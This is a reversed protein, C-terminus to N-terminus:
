IELEDKNNKDLIDKNRLEQNNEIEYNLMEQREELFNDMIENRDFECNIMDKEIFSFQQILDPESVKAHEDYYEPNLEYEQKETFLGKKTKEQYIGLECAREMFGKYMNYDGKFDDLTLPKTFKFDATKIAEKAEKQLKRLTMESIEADFANNHDFLPHLGIINGTENDQYFGFNYLSRDTNLVLYDMIKMQKYPENDITEILDDFNIKNKNCLSYVDIAPVVSFDENGLNQCRCCRESVQQYEVHSINTKDLINSTVIEAKIEHTDGYKYLWTSGKEHKWYKPCSGHLINNTIDNIKIEKESELQINQFICIESLDNERPNVKDWTIPSTEPKVWFSDTMSTFNFAAALLYKEDFNGFISSTNLLIEKNKNSLIHNRESIFDKIQNITINETQLPIPLLDPELIKINKKNLDYQLVPTDKLMILM